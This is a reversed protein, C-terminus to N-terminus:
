ACRSCVQMPPWKPYRYRDSSRSGGKKSVPDAIVSILFYLVIHCLKNHYSIVVNCAYVFVYVM